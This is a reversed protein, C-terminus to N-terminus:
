NHADKYSFIIIEQTDDNCLMGARRDKQPAVMYEYAIIQYASSSNETLDFLFELNGEETFDNTFPEDMIYKFNEAEVSNSVIELRCDEKMKTYEKEDELDFSVGIKSDFHSTYYYYKNDKASSPLEDPFLSAEAKKKFNDYSMFWTQKYTVYGEFIYLMICLGIFFMVAMVLMFQLMNSMRNSIKKTRNMSDELVQM